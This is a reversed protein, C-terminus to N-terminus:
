FGKAEILEFKEPWEEVRISCPLKIEPEISVLNKRAATEEKSVEFSSIKTGPTPWGTFMQQGRDWLRFFYEEPGKIQLIVRYNKDM